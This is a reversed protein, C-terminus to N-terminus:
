IDETRANGLLEMCSLGEHSAVLEAVVFFFFEGFKIFDKRENCHEPCIDRDQAM